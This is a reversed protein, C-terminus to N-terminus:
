TTKPKTTASLIAARAAAAQNASALRASVSLLVSGAHQLARGVEALGCPPCPNIEQSKDSFSTVRCGCPLDQVQAIIPDAM